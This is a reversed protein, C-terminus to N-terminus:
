SLTIVHSLFVNHLALVQKIVKDVPICVSVEIWSVSVTFAIPNKKHPHSSLIRSIM